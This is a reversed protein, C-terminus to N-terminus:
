IYVPLVLVSLLLTSKFLYPQGNWRSIELTELLESTPTSSLSEQNAPQTREDAHESM